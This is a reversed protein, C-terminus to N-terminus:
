TGIGIGKVFSGIVKDLKMVIQVLNPLSHTIMTVRNFASSLTYLREGPGLLMYRTTTSVAIGKGSGVPGLQEQVGVTVPGASDLQLSVLTWENASFQLETIGVGTFITKCQTAM